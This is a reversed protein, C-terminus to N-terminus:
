SLPDLGTIWFSTIYGEVVVPMLVVPDYVFTVTPGTEIFPSEYNFSFIIIMSQSKLM